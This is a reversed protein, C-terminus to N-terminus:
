LQVFEDMAKKEDGKYKAVLYWYMTRTSEVAIGGGKLVNLLEELEREAEVFRGAKCDAVARSQRDDYTGMQSRSSRKLGIASEQTESFRDLFWAVPFLALWMVPISFFFLLGIAAVWKQETDLWFWISLRVALYFLAAEYVLISMWMVRLRRAM